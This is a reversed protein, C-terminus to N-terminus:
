TLAPASAEAWLIKRVAAAVVFIHTNNSKPDAPVLYFGPKDKGYAPTVGCIMEGDTFTVMLKRGPGTVHSLDNNDIRKYDGDYSKVFFVGKLSGVSVAIEKANPEGWIALHFVAKDPAFDQTVGKLLRGDM